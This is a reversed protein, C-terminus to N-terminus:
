PNLNTHGPAMLEGTVLTIKFSRDVMNLAKEPVKEDASIISAFFIGPTIKFNQVKNFSGKGLKPM